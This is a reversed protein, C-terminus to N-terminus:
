ETEERKSSGIKLDKQRSQQIEIKMMKGVETKVLRNIYKYHTTIEKESNLLLVAVVVLFRKAASM